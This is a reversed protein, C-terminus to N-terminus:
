EEPEVVPPEEEKRDSLYVSLDKKIESEDEQPLLAKARAKARAREELERAAMAEKMAVKAEKGTMFDTKSQLVEDLAVTTEKTFKSTVQPKSGQMLQRARQAAIIVLRYRSDIKTDDFDTILSMIDM